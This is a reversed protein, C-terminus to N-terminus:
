GGSSGGAQTGDEPMASATSDAGRRRDPHATSSSSAAMRSVRWRPPLRDAAARWPISTSSAALSRARRDLRQAYIQPVTSSTYSHWAVVFGGGKLRGIAPAEQIGDKSTNVVFEPGAIVKPATGILGITAVGLACLVALARGIRAQM